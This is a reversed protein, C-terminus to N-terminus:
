QLSGYLDLGAADTIRVKCFLGKLSKRSHLVVNCDVEPADKETRGICLGELDEDMLVKLTKGILGRNKRCIIDNQLYLLEEMRARTTRDKIRGRFRFAKTGEEPSYPFVGMRDFETDKVFDLLERSEAKTEGPFGSIFTTRLAIGPVKERLKRVLTEVYNRGYHRNMRTLVPNSIHQLPLDIYKAVSKESAIVDTLEDSVGSPHCYMLRIWEFSPSLRSLKRVLRPLGRRDQYATIDQAVLILEKVGQSRLARAEGLIEGEPRSIHKGRILPIACYSCFNGCGEAIKIPATHAPGSLLRAARRGVGRCQGGYRRIIQKATNDTDALGLVLDAEHIEKKLQAPYRESLCGCVV